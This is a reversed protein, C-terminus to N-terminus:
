KEAEKIKAELWELLDRYVTPYKMRVYKKVEKLTAKKGKQFAESENKGLVCAECDKKGDMKGLEYTEWEGNTWKTRDKLTKM